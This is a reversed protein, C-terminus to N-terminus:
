KMWWKEFCVMVNVFVGLCFGSGMVCIADNKNVWGRGVEGVWELGDVKM